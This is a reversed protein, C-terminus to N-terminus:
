GQAHSETTLNDLLELAKSAAAEEAKQKSLGTGESLKKDGLLVAAVYTREHAPGSEQIITYTPTIKYLQQTLEQLRTKSDVYNKQKVAEDIKAFLTKEIFAKAHKMKGDLYIAGVLSEYLNALLYEKTRGGTKEEGHGMILYKGMHLTGMIEALSSTRVVAARVLTMIGEPLDPYTAFMYESVVLELVADGLFELRENNYLFGQKKLENAYSRHTLATTLTQKKKFTYGILTEVEQLNSTKSTNQKTNM